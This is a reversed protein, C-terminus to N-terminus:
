LMTRTEQNTVLLHYITLSYYHMSRTPRFSKSGVRSTHDRGVILTALVRVAVGFRSLKRARLEELGGSGNSPGADGRWGRYTFALDAGDTSHWLDTM